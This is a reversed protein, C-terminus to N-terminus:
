YPRMPESIHILFLHMRPHLHLHMAQGGTPAHPAEAWDVGSTDSKTLKEAAAEDVVGDNVVAADLVATPGAGCGDVICM